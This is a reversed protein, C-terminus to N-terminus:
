QRLTFAATDAYDGYVPAVPNAPEPGDGVYADSPTYVDAEIEYQKGAVLSSGCVNMAGATCASGAAPLTWQYTGNLNQAGAILATTADTTPDVLWLAIMAGGPEDSSQWNVTVTDGHNITTGDATSNISVAGTSTATGIAITTSAEQTGGGQTQCQLLFTSNQTIPSTTVSGNVSTNYANAATFSSQDPSSVVCSQMGTTIWGLTSPTGAPVTKPNAVLIISPQNIQVSCQAGTIAGQNNCSLAYTGTNTGAPPAAVTTTASGAPQAAATFGNGTATGSSCSYSIAISMGVDAVQPQCSIQAGSGCQWNVICSGSYIPQWAGATCTSPDPQAPQTSCQSQTSPTCATPQQPPVPAASTQGYYQSNYQNQQLQYNYQQLQTNYQQLATQYNQQQAAYATPDTSCPVAPAPAAAAPASAASSLGKALGALLSALGSAAGNNNGNQQGSGGFTNTPTPPQKQAPAPAQCTGNNNVQGGSCTCTAVAAGATGCAVSPTEAAGPLPTCETVGESNPACKM